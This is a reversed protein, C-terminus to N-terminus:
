FHSHHFFSTHIHSTVESLKDPWEKNALKFLTDGFTSACPIDLFHLSRQHLNLMKQTSWQTQAPYKGLLRQLLQFMKWPIQFLLNHLSFTVECGMKFLRLLKRLALQASYLCIQVVCSSQQMQLLKPPDAVTVQLKLVM